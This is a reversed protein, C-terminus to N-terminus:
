FTKWDNWFKIITAIDDQREDIFVDNNIKTISVFSNWILQRSKMKFLNLAIELTNTESLVIQRINNDEDEFMEHLENMKHFTECLEKNHQATDIVTLFKSVFENFSLGFIEATIRTHNSNDILLDQTKQREENLFIQLSNYKYM